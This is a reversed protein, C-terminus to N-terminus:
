FRISARRRPQAQTSNSGEASKLGTIVRTGPKINDSAIETFNIDSIGMRVDVPKISGEPSLIWLKGRELRSRSGELTSGNDGDAIKSAWEGKDKRGEGDKRKGKEARSGAEDSLASSQESLSEEPEISRYPEPPSFFFASAPVRVVDRREDVTIEVNATMGPKLAMDNNQVNVMVSYTVVNSTAVPALRVQHVIGEFTRGRYADVTFTVNQGVRVKGIDAEDVATDIQMLTLDQAITFLTPAQLSAAVTQGVDVNRSIVVGDIPSYIRTRELNIKAVNVQAEMQKIRSDSGDLEAKNAKVQAHISGERAIASDVGAKAAELNAKQSALATESSDLDAQSILRRDFLQQTRNLNRQAEELVVKAKQLNARQVQQDAKNTLLSGKLNEVQALISRQSARAGELNAIAQLLQAEHTAPDLQAILQGERVQDNFDTSISAIIGSIQCGVAVTTLAALSGTASITMVIDGRDVETTDWEPPRSSAKKWQWVAAIIALVLIIVVFLCGKKM